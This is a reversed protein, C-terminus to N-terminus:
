EVQYGVPRLLDECKPPAPTRVDPLRGTDRVWLSIQVM